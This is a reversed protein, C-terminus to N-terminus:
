KLQNREEAQRERIKHEDEFFKMLIFDVIRMMKTKIKADRM